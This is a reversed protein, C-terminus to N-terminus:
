VSSRKRWALRTIGLLAFISVLILSVPTAWRALWRNDSPRAPLEPDQFPKSDGAPPTKMGPDAEMALKIPFGDKNLAPLTLEGAADTVLAKKNIKDMVQIGPPFKLTFKDSSIPENIKIDTFEIAWAEEGTKTDVCHVKAPYFVGPIPEAFETVEQEMLHKDAGGALKSRTTVVRALYNV